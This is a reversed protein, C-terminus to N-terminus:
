TYLLCTCAGCQGSPACGDKASIVGLEDRLAGLLHEHDESVVVEEGNLEFATM